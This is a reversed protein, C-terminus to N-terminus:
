PLNVTVVRSFMDWGEGTLGPDHVVHVLYLKSGPPAGGGHELTMTADGSSGFTGSAGTLAVGWSQPPTALPDVGLENGSDLATSVVVEYNLGEYGSLDFNAALGSPLPDPNASDPDISVALLGGSPAGTPDSPTTPPTFGSTDPPDPPDPNPTPPTTPATDNKGSKVDGDPTAQEGTLVPSSGPTKPTTRGGSKTVYWSLRQFPRGDVPHTPFCFRWGLFIHVFDYHKGAPPTPLNLGSGQEPPATGQAVEDTPNPPPNPDGTSDAWSVADVRVENPHDPVPSGQIPSTQQTGSLSSPTTVEGHAVDSDEVQGTADDVLRARTFFVREARWCGPDDTRVVLKMGKPAVLHFDKMNHSGWDTTVVRSLHYCRCSQSGPANDPATLTQAHAGVLTLGLLLPLALCRLAIRWRKAQSRM